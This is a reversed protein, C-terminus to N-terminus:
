ETVFIADLVRHAFEECEIEDGFSDFASLIRSEFDDRLAEDKEISDRLYEIAKLVCEEDALCHVESMIEVEQPGTLHVITTPFENAFHEIEVGSVGGIEKGDILLQSYLPISDERSRLEVRQLM